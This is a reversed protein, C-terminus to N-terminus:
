GLVSAGSAPRVQAILVPPPGKRRMLVAAVVPLTFVFGMVAAVLAVAALVVAILTRRWGSM